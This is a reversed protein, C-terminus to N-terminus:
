YPEWDDRFYRKMLDDAKYCKDAKLAAILLKKEDKTAWRIKTQADSYGDYELENVDCGNNRLTLDVYSEFFTSGDSNDDVRGKLVSLWSCGKREDGWTCFLIDGDHFRDIRQNM